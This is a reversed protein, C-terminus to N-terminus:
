APVSINWTLSLTDNKTWSAEQGSTSNEVTAIRGELLVNETNVLFLTPFQLDDGVTIISNFISDVRGYWIRYWRPQEIFHAGTEATLTIKNNGNTQESVIISGLPQFNETISPGFRGGLFGVNSDGGGATSVGNPRYAVSNASKITTATWGDQPATLSEADATNFGTLITGDLKNKWSLNPNYFFQWGYGNKFIYDGESTNSFGGEARATLATDANWEDSKHIPHIVQLEKSTAHDKIDQNQTVDADDGAEATTTLPINYVSVGLIELDRIKYPSTLLYQAQDVDPYDPNPDGANNGGVITPPTVTDHPQNFDAVVVGDGLTHRWLGSRYIDPLYKTNHLNIPNFIRSLKEVFGIRWLSSATTNVPPTASNGMTIEYAGNKNYAALDPDTGRLYNINPEGDGYTPLDFKVKYEIYFNDNKDLTNNSTPAFGAIPEFKGNLLEVLIIKGDEINRDRGGYTSNLVPGDQDIHSHIFKQTNAVEQTAPIDVFETVADANGFCWYHSFSTAGGLLRYWPQGGFSHNANGDTSLVYNNGGFNCRVTSYVGKSKEINGTVSPLDSANWLPFWNTANITPRSQATYGSLDSNYHDAIVASGSGINAAGVLLPNIFNDTEIHTASTKMDLNHMWQSTTTATYGSTESSNETFRNEAYLSTTLDSDVSYRRNSRSAKFVDGDSPIWRVGFSDELETLSYNTDSVDTGTITRIRSEGIKGSSATIKWRQAAADFNVSGNFATGGTTDNSATTVRVYVASNDTATGSRVGTTVDHAVAMGETIRNKFTQSVTNTFDHTSKVKGNPDVISFNGFGEISDIIKNNM